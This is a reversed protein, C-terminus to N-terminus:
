GAGGVTKLKAAPLFRVYNVPSRVATIGKVERTLIKMPIRSIGPADSCLSSVEAREGHVLAPGVGPADPCFGSRAM